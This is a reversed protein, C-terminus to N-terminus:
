VVSKRDGIAIGVAGGVINIGSVVVKGDSANEIRVNVITGGDLRGTIGGVVNTNAFSASIPRITFNMLTGVAGSLSSRGVEAFLGSYNMKASSILSLGDIEMFNGEIYGMFKTQYLKSNSEFEAYDIDNILRYYGYNYGAGNNQRVIYDEMTTADYILIPNEATGM